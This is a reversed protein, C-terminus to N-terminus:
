GARSLRGVVRGHADILTLTSGTVSARVAQELWGTTPAGAWGCAIGATPGSTSVLAGGRGVAWRGSTTNCGDSGQWADDASFYLYPQHSARTHRFGPPIWRGVMSSRTAPTLGSPLRQGAVLRSRDQASLPVPLGGFTVRRTVPVLRAVVAGASNLLLRDAHAARFGTADSLWSPTLQHICARPGGFLAGIFLGSRDADWAGFTVGCSERVTLQDDFRVLVSVSGPAIVRWAGVLTLPSAAAGRHGAPGTVSVVPRAWVGISAAVGIAVAAAAATVTLGARLQRRRWRGARHLVDGFDGAPIDAEASQRWTRFREELDVM